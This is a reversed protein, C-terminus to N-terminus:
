KGETEKPQTSQKPIFCVYSRPHGTYDWGNDKSYDLTDVYCKDESYDYITVRYRGNNLPRVELQHFMEKDM